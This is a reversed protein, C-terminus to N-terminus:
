DPIFIHFIFQKSDDNDKQNQCRKRRNLGPYGGCGIRVDFRAIDKWQRIGLPKVWLGADDYAVCLQGIRVADM